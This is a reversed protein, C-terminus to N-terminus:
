RWCAPPPEKKVPVPQVEIVAPMTGDIEIEGNSPTAFVFTRQSADNRDHLLDVAFSGAANSSAELILTALYGSAATAVGAGDLGVVFQATHVNFASWFPLGDFVHDKRDDVVIDVLRLSGREGGSVAVHLQYGRLDPLPRDFFLDVEILDGPQAIQRSGALTVTTRGRVQPGAAPAHPAPGGGDLPCSCTTSGDFANLAHYADNGDCVGDPACDGFPGGADVNYAAPPAEECDYGPQGATGTDAFCNLAHYRDHADAVADPSCDGFPGGLDSFVVATGACAGNDCTWWMCNDARVGTGGPDACDAAVACATNGLVDVCASFESTSGLPELVATATLLWGDPVAAILLVDFAADGAVDTTVAASGLLLQGEGNGSPDCEASAFFEITYDSTPNSHLGGVVHIASGQRTALAIEPFNQLGNGGADVDLSDNPTVGTQFAATILDIGLSGNDHISNGSIRVGSFTNAVSVGSLLHGAIDNGDGAEPGGIGVDQVPGLYYNTTTIGTVSGLVPEDNANLGVANGVIFVGSGAGYVNIATGVLWGDFHPGIGHGLIGAIRNNRITTDHNEGEFLIGATTALHGQQLGDPTTGIWNNEVVTGIADFIQVAFGGPYGESDWTGLGTIYNREAPEPGGIRNNSAPQGGGVWGLVRVRQVTNGVVVNDSSRDIQVHGGTNNRVMSGSGGFLEIGMATNDEVLGNSETVSVSSSDLGFVSCNDANFYLTSGWLVVEWGNPNTDGTFATQTTADITVEDYARWYNGVVTHVVARGPYYWSLYTWDSTPIAFGITQGDPTNNSAIMAESFSVHGDPGPLDAVTATDPNVDIIDDAIDVTITQGLAGSGATALLAALAIAHRIM